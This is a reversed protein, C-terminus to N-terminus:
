PPRGRCCAARRGSRDRQRRREQPNQLLDGIGAHAVVRRHRQAAFEGAFRDRAIASIPRPKREIEIDGAEIPGTLAISVSSGSSSSLREEVVIQHRRRLAAIRASSCAKASSREIGSTADEDHDIQGAITHILDDLTELHEFRLHRGARRRIGIHLHRRFIASNCSMTALIWAFQARGLMLLGVEFRHEGVLRVSASIRASASASRGADLLADLRQLLVDLESSSGM